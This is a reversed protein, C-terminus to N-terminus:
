VQIEFQYYIILLWSKCHPTTLVSVNDSKCHPTTRLSRHSAWLGLLPNWRPQRQRVGAFMKVPEEAKEPTKLNHPEPFKSGCFFLTNNNLKSAYGVEYISTPTPEREM